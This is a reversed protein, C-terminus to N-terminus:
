CRSDIADIFFKLAIMLECLLKVERNESALAGYLIALRPIPGRLSSWGPAPAAKASPQVGSQVNALECPLPIEHVLGDKGTVAVLIDSCSDYEGPGAIKCYSGAKLANCAANLKEDFSRDVITVISVPTDISTSSSTAMAVTFASILIIRVM